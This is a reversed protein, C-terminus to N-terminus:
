IDPMNIIVNGTKKGALVYTYAEAIEELGYERDIVPRFIGNELANSIFPITKKTSYPIPFMVKKSNFLPTFLSYFINEAYPGLESSIYVGNQKLLPKCKSFRSKGVADFIFDYLRKDKTFDEKTFDYIKDAGLSKVLAINKTNCVATISVDYQRVFQLLASGIAGAVGNILISQGNKITSKHLFTYAYHAGELSAAAQKFSCNKPILFVHEQTTVLHTAQSQSSTDTFGFVKDEPKYTIVNKGVAIIEGAFDTGLVPKKPKLLGIIFTMIFPKATLNACDTRNVTTAHVKVLVENDKPVPVECSEVVIMEPGGYSRRIAAKM